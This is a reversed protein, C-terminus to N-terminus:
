WGHYQKHVQKESTNGWLEVEYFTDWDADLSGDEQETETIVQLSAADYDSTNIEALKEFLEVTTLGSIIEQPTMFYGDCDAEMNYLVIVHSTYTISFM